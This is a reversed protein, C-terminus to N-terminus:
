DVDCVNLGCAAAWGDAALGELLWLCALLPPNPPNALLLLAPGMLLLPPNADSALLPPSPPIKPLAPLAVLLVSVNAFAVNPFHHTGASM